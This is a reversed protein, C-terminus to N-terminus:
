GRWSNLGCIRRSSRRTSLQSNLTSLKCTRHLGGPLSQITGAAKANASASFLVDRSRKLGRTMEHVCRVRRRDANAPWFAYVGRPVLLNKAVIQELLKQADDFLERAQKGVKPDDFIAPYRGRLNGHTFSRRGISTNSSIVSRFPVRSKMRLPACRLRLIRNRQGCPREPPIRPEALFSLKRCECESSSRNRHCM